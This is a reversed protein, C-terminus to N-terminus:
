AGKVKVERVRAETAPGEVAALVKGTETKQEDTMMARLAGTAKVLLSVHTAETAYAAAAKKAKRWLWGLGGLLGAGTLGLGGLILKTALMGSTLSWGAGAAKVAAKQRKAADVDREESRDAQLGEGKEVAAEMEEVSAPTHAPAGHEALLVGLGRGVLGMWRDRAEVGQACADAVRLVAAGLLERHVEQLRPSPQPPLEVAPAERHVGFVEAVKPLAGCGCLALAPVLVAMTWTTRKRM